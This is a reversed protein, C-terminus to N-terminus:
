RERTVCPTFRGISTINRGGRCSFVRGVLVHRAAGAATAADHRLELIALDRYRRMLGVGSGERKTTFFPVFIKARQDPAIGSGNDAVAIAVRGDPDRQACLAIRGEATDRLAEVANRVLNILDQEDRAPPLLRRKLWL